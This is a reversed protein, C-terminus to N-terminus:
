KSCFRVRKLFFRRVFWEIMCLDSIRLFNRLSFRHIQSRRLLFEGSSFGFYYVERFRLKRSPVGEFLIQRCFEFKRSLFKWSSIVRSILHGWFSGKFRPDGRFFDWSLFLGKPFSDGSLSKGSRIEHDRSKESLPFEMFRGFVFRGFVEGSYSYRSYM